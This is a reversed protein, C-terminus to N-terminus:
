RQGPHIGITPRPPSVAVMPRKEPPLNRVQRLTERNVGADAAERAAASRDQRPPLVQVIQQTPKERAPRGGVRKSAEEEARRRVEAQHSGAVEALLVWIAAQQDKPLHRRLVNQSWVLARAADYDGRWVETRPQVGALKCAALRNRGDNARDSRTKAM